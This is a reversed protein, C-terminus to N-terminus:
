QAGRRRLPWNRLAKASVGTLEELRFALDWSPRDFGSDICRVYTPHRDLQAALAARAAQLGDPHQSLWMRLPNTAM